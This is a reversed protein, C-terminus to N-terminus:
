ITHKQSVSEPGTHAVDLGTASSVSVEVHRMNIDGNNASWRPPSTCVGGRGWVMWFFPNTYKCNLRPTSRLVLHLPLLTKRLNLLFGSPRPLKDSRLLMAGKNESEHNDLRSKERWFGDHLDHTRVHWLFHRKCGAARSFHEASM